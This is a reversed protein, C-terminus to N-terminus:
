LKSLKEAFEERQSPAKIKGSFHSLFSNKLMSRWNSLIRVFIVLFGPM